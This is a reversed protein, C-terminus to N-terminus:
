VLPLDTVKVVSEDELLSSLNCKIYEDERSDIWIRINCFVWINWAKNHKFVVSM